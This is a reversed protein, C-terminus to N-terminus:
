KRAMGLISLFFSSLMIQCGLILSLVAPIVIRFTHSPDLQGFEAGGIARARLDHRRARGVDAGRRRDPREGSRSVPVAQGATSGHPMLKETIAFIRAFMSFVISQFGIFIAAAGYLLTHVDLTMGGITRPGPLIWAGASLRGAAAACGPYFFLWRPSYMLLFRLHRWGDRWSRLHPPRSPRGAVADGAGRRDEDQVADGQRGDRQRVGDRDDASGNESHRGTQFGRLGCHFDGAPARFFLRGLGSLVPNGLYKHLSPMAGPKIGGPFRNGMVLDDGKACSRSSRSSRPSTTATTPTAWSSSAHRPRERNRGHARQRIGEGRSSSARAPRTAIAQSGDTSGNDAIVVEGVIGQTPAGVPGEHHVDGADRGRQPM